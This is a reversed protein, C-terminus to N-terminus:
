KRKYLLDMQHEREVEKRWPQHAVLINEKLSELLHPSVSLDGCYNELYNIESYLFEHARSYDHDRNMEIIRRLIMSQWTSAAIRSVLEDRRQPTNIRGPAYTFGVSAGPGESSKGSFVNCWESKVNLPVRTDINGKPFTLKFVLHRMEGSYVQGVKWSNNKQNEHHELGDLSQIHVDAPTFFSLGVEEAVAPVLELYRSSLIDVINEWGLGVSLESCYQDDIAALRAANPIVGVGVGTSYLKRRRLENAHRALVEPETGEANSKGDSLVVVRNHIEEGVENGAAQEAGELWGALFNSGSSIEINRITESALKKGAETMKEKSLLVRAQRGFSVVSVVDKESMREILSTSISKARHIPGDVMSESSDIAFCINHSSRESPMETKKAIIRVVLYRVSKGRHWVLSRDVKAEVAFPFEMESM